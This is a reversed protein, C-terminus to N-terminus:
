LLYSHLGIYSLQYLLANTIRLDLTRTGANAGFRVPEDLRYPKAKKQPSEFRAFLCCHQTKAFGPKEASSSFVATSGAELDSGRFVLGQM